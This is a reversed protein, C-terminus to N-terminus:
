SLKETKMKNKFQSLFLESNKEFSNKIKNDIENLDLEGKIDLIIDQKLNEKIKTLDSIEQTIEDEVLWEKARIHSAYLKITVPILCSIVVGFGFDFWQELSIDGFDNKYNIIILHRSYYYVNVLIEIIMFLSVALRINTAETSYKNKTDDSISTFYLLSTSIFASILIAQLVKSTGAYSSINVTLYYTHAVQAVTGIVCYIFAFERSVFTKLTSRILKKM